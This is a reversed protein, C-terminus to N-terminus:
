TIIKNKSGMKKNYKVTGTPTTTPQPMNSRTSKRNTKYWSKHHNMKQDTNPNSLMELKMAFDHDVHDLLPEYRPPLGGERDTHVNYYNYISLLNFHVITCTLFVLLLQYCKWCSISTSNKYTVILYVHNPHRSFIIRLWRCLQLAM